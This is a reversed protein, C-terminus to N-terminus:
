NLKISNLFITIAILVDIENNVDLKNQIFIISMFEKPKNKEIEM